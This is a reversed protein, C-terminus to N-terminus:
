FYSVTLPPPKQRQNNFNNNNNNNQRNQEANDPKCEDTVITESNLPTKTDSNNSSFNSLKKDDKDCNTQDKSQDNSHDNQSEVSSVITIKM